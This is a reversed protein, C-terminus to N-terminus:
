SQVPPRLRALGTRVSRMCNTWWQRRHVPAWEANHRPRRGHPSATFYHAFPLHYSLWYVVKRARPSATPRHASLARTTWPRAHPKCVARHKHCQTHSLSIESAVAMTRMFCTMSSAAARHPTTRLGACACMCGGRVGQLFCSPGCRRANKAVAPTLGSRHRAM